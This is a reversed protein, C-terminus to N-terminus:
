RGSSREPPRHLHRRWGVASLYLNVGDYMYGATSASAVVNWRKLFDGRVGKGEGDLYLHGIM